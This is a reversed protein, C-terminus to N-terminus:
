QVNDDDEKVLLWGGDKVATQWDLDIPEDVFCLGTANQILAVGDPWDERRIAIAQGARLTRIAHTLTM